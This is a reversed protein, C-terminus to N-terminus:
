LKSKNEWHNYTANSCENLIPVFLDAISDPQALVTVYLKDMIFSLLKTKLM